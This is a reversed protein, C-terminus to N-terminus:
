AAVAMEIGFCNSGESVSELRDANHMLYFDSWPGIEFSPSPRSTISDQRFINQRGVGDIILSLGDQQLQKTATAQVSQRAHPWLIAGDKGQTPAVSDRDTLGETNRRTLVRRIPVRSMAPVPNAMFQQAADVLYEL